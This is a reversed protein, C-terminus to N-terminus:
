YTKNIPGDSPQYRRDATYATHHHFLWEHFQSISSLDPIIKDLHNMSENEKQLRATLAEPTMGVNPVSRFELHYADAPNDMQYIWNFIKQTRPLHFQSTIILLKRLRRPGCHIIRSFFANGVTDFSSTEVLINNPDINKKILYRAAAVSELVPYGWQDKPPPKHPTGASLPIILEGKFIDIATDMRNVVWPQLEDASLLGGGPILIADYQKNMM